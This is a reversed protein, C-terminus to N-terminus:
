VDNALDFMRPTTYDLKLERLYEEGERTEIVSSSLGVEMEPFPLNKIRGIHFELYDREDDLQYGAYRCAKFAEIAKPVDEGFVKASKLFYDKKSFYINQLGKHGSNQQYIQGTHKNELSCSHVGIHLKEHIAFEILDLCDLESGAVPLGGGYWYNYLVRYPYKKVQYSNGRYTETNTYPYCFELLNIGFIDLRDLELLIEKMRDSRGPLVPMEVMVAPVYERADALKSFM